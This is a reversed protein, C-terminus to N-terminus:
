TQRKRRWYSGFPLPVFDLRPAQKYDAFPSMSARTGDDSKVSRDASGIFLSDVQTNTCLDPVRHQPVLFIDMIGIIKKVQIEIATVADDVAVCPHKTLVLLHGSVGKSGLKHAQAVRDAQSCHHILCLKLPSDAGSLCFWLSNYRGQSSM